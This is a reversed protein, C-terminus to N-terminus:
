PRLAGTTSVPTWPLRLTVTYSDDTHSSKLLAQGDFLGDLRSRINDLAVRNGTHTAADAPPRPNTLLIYVWHGERYARLRVEGGEPRPQIGHYIANELLPQLSLPPVAQDRVDDAVEQVTHLRPGLRLAEISLYRECFSLEQALPILAAHTQLSARFLESLDLVADEARQPDSVILSAITNMSNFLFHPQIRAQLAGLRAQMEAQRQLRWQYQLYFYRLVILSIVLSILANRALWELHPRPGHLGHLQFLDALLGFLLTIVQILALLILTVRSIDQRALWPRLACILAACTLVVWHAFLSVLGLYDWDLWHRENGRILAFLVAVLETTVLLLLVARVRCLDPIYRDAPGGTLLSSFRPPRTRM